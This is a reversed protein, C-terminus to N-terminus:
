LGKHYCLHFIEGLAPPGVLFGFATSALMLTFTIDYYQCDMEMATLSLMTWYVGDLMGIAGM